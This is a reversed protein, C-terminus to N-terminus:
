SIIFYNFNNVENSTNEIKNIIQANLKVFGGRPTHKFANSLFNRIVQAIKFTDICVVINSLLKYEQSENESTMDKGIYDFQIGGEHALLHFPKSNIIICDIIRLYQKRLFLHGEEVKDYVLLDNLINVSSQCSLTIDEIIGKMDYFISRQLSYLKNLINENMFIIPNNEPIIPLNHIEQQYSQLSTQTSSIIHIM